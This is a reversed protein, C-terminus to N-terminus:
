DRTDALGVYGSTGRRARMHQPPGSSGMNRRHRTPPATSRAPATRPLADLFIVERPHQLNRPQERVPRDGARTLSRGARPVVCAVPVEGLEEDPRGVVVAESIASCEDLVAELDSPYVNSSGVIVIDKLRDVIRLYGDEDLLGVDGTRIWGDHFAERTAQPNEWYGQMVSARPDVGRGARRTLAEGSADVVRIEAHLVPKGVTFAAEPSQRPRRPPSGM